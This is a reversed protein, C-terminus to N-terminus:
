VNLAYLVTVAFIVAICYISIVRHLFVSKHTKAFLGMGSVLSFAGVVLLVNLIVFRMSIRLDPESYRFPNGGIQMSYDQMLNMMAMINAQFSTGIIAFAFAPILIIYSLVKTSRTGYLMGWAASGILALLFAILRLDPLLMTTRQFNDYLLSPGANIVVLIIAFLVGVISTLLNATPIYVLTLKSPTSGIAIGLLNLIIANAFSAM